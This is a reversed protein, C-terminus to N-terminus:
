ALSDCFVYFRKFDGLCVGLHNREGRIAERLAQPYLPLGICSTLPNDMTEFCVLNDGSLSSPANPSFFGSENALPSTAFVFAEEEEVKKSAKQTVVGFPKLSKPRRPITSLM